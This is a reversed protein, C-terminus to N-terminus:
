VVIGQTSCDRLITLFHGLGFFSLASYYIRISALAALLDWSERVPHTLRFAFHFYATGVLRTKLCEAPSASLRSSQGRGLWIKLSCLSCSAGSSSFSFKHGNAPSRFFFFDWPVSAVGLVAECISSTAEPYRELCSWQHNKKREQQRPTRGPAAQWM